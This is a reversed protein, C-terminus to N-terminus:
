GKKEALIIETGTDAQKRVVEQQASISEIVNTTDDELFGLKTLADIVPKFGGILNDFDLEKLGKRKITLSANTVPPGFKGRGYHNITAEWILNLWEKKIGQYKSWHARVWTNPSPTPVHLTVKLVRTQEAASGDKEATGAHTVKPKRNGTRKRRVGTRAQSGSHTGRKAKSMGRM